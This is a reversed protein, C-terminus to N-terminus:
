KKASAPSPAPPEPPALQAAFAKMANYAPKPDFVPNRGPHYEHHVLGFHIQFNTPSGSEERWDYWISLPIGSGINTQFVRTLYDAQKAENLGKWLTSYGWESSIIPVTRDAPAYKAIIARLHLYDDTASEPEGHRYPHVSVAAWDGLLGAQFCAELFDFNMTATAPGVIPENPAAQHIAADAATALGIYNTVSPTPAWFGKWDPENWIEWICGRGAFHAVAAAAWAAYSQRFERTGVRSTFPEKDGPDAYLPNGYDLVLIAHINQKDLAALFPEYASFDYKGKEKETVRWILDMRVWKFGAAKIMELEGPAFSTSHINVGLGDSPTLLPPLPAVAWARPLSFCLMALLLAMLARTRFDTLHNM